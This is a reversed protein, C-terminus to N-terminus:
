PLLPPLLHDLPVLIQLNSTGILVVKLGDMKVEDVMKFPIGFNEKLYYTCYHIIGKTQQIAIFFVKQM